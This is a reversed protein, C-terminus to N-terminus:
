NWTSRVLRHSRSNSALTKSLQKGNSADIHRQRKWRASASTRTTTTTSRRMIDSQVSKETEGVMCSSVAVPFVCVCFCFCFCLSVCLCSVNWLAIIDHQDRLSRTDHRTIHHQTTNDNDNHEDQDKKEWGEEKKERVDLHLQKGRSLKEEYVCTVTMHSKDEVHVDLPTSLSPSPSAFTSSPSPSSSSSASASSPHCHPSM